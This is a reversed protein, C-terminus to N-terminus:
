DKIRKVTPRTIDMNVDDIRTVQVDIVIKDMKEGDVRDIKGTDAARLSFVHNIKKHNYKQCYFVGVSQSEHGNQLPVDTVDFSLTGRAKFWKNPRNTLTFIKAPVKQGNGFILIGDCEISRM